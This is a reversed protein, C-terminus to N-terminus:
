PAPTRRGPVASQPVRRRRPRAGSPFSGTYARAPRPAACTATLRVALAELCLHEGQDGLARGPAKGVIAGHDDDLQASRAPASALTPAEADGPRASLSKHRRGEGEKAWPTVEEEALGESGPGGRGIKVAAAVRGPCSSFSPTDHWFIAGAVGVGVAMRDANKQEVITGGEDRAIDAIGRAVAIGDQELQHLAQREVAHEGAIRGALRGDDCRCALQLVEAYAADGAIAAEEDLVLIRHALRHLHRDEHRAEQLDGEEGLHELGAARDAADGRRALLQAVM